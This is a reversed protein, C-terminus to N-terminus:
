LGRKETDGQFSELLTSISPYLSGDADKKTTVFAYTVQM